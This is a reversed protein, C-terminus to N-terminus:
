TEGGAEDGSEALKAALERLGAKTLQAQVLDPQQRHLRALNGATIGLNHEDQYEAFIGWARLYYEAAQRWQRQQQAVMGLQHYTSAQSYRDSFEIKIDLAKQYYEAAQQWQRQEQAVIGLQHYTFAQSHRDNFEIQIDLAKQYYEAAQQWQQQKQAVMGLQHCTSAQSHRDNFEIKIDLAKQYYEAAQQWQRQEQAVRGLQHCTGAQEYRDNFEIKIDLAKQYYEAAQQWQRQEQAVMGLQHYITASKTQIFKAKFAQNSLWIKLAKQYAQEAEAYQKSLLFRKAIDDIVGVFEAGLQGSLAEQPYQELKALVQQGLELGRAQDQATDLYLSLAKYINLISARADLTLWLAKYLNEYELRTLLPGLQKEQPKKSKLMQVLGGGAQTYFLHFATEIAAQLEAQAQLRHRLFYPLAPQIRLFISLEHPTVLGWNRAENLVADWQAFPLDALVPQQQLLKTYEPLWQVNVVGVFPALCLLLQQAPPSLNSHSYEICRLISKTKDGSDLDIAEDGSTLAQLVQAPTKQPLNSLVVELALPFGGLLKLLRVLAERHEPENRLHEAHRRQLVADALNSASEADLGPLRYINEAFTGAQLWKEDGRSGLLALTQGGTLEAVFERLAAQQKANLTHQIAMAAGTVSELNDLILLHRESRLAQALKRLQAAESLSQFRARCEEEGWLSLAINELIQQRTWAKSDFGFYFVKDVFRTTQWWEGLHRLLATKGAGGMGQLLLVNRRMLLREELELIEVDRGFFGYEPKAGVFRAADREFYAAEEQPTFERLPLIAQRSQYVVPLMWDELDIQENHYARRTKHNYLEFRGRRIAAALPQGDFLRRYLECMFVKAASVTVSYAMAVVFQAGSQMLHGALSTERDAGAQKASQCANLVVAPIGHLYLLDTLEPAAIPAAKGNEEHQLFIFAQKGEFPKIEARGYDYFVFRGAEHGAQLQEWTLVAGHLDFHIAHYFGKGRTESVQKLHQKLAKYTGPRLIEINVPLSADRVMEVLPRSITRYGVDKRGEPRAVVLLINLVPSERPTIPQFRANLNLPKRVIVQHLALPEPQEPDKLTEWHLGHFAPSGLIELEFGDRLADRYDGYADRDAFLQGFLTEGCTRVSEAANRYRVKDIFPFKLHQEFYWELEAEQREDCPPTITVPYRRSSKEFALVAQFGNDTLATETLTM